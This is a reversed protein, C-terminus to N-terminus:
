DANTVFGWRMLGPYDANTVFGCRMLGPYYANTVLGVANTRSLRCENCFWV